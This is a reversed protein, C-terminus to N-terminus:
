VIQIQTLWLPDPSWRYIWGTMPLTLARHGSWTWNDDYGIHITQFFRGSQSFNYLLQEHVAFAYPEITQLAALRAWATSVATGWFGVGVVVLAVAAFLEPLYRRVPQSM